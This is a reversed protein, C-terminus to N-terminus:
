LYKYIEAPYDIIVDAGNEKLEDRSRFGWTVGIAFINSNIATKMDVGSDGVYLCDMSHVNMVALCELVATPDPKHPIGERQGVVINFNFDCLLESVIKKTFEDPKNSVIAMKIRKKQLEGLMDCIGDYPKTYDMYHLRYYDNYKGLIKKVMEDNNFNKPLSRKILNFAGNGIFNKYRETEHGTFGFENLTHNVCNAIDEISNLLTGDLDFIVAKVM